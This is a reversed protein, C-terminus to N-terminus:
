PPTARRNLGLSLYLQAASTKPHGMPISGSGAPSEVFDYVVGPVGDTTDAGNDAGSPGIPRVTGANAPINRFETSTHTHFSAVSYTAGPDCPTPTASSDAPRPPLNVGAGSTPGSWAGFVTATFEYTDTQTNLRIWFGQERRQNPAATCDNLTATWASGVQSSVGADGTIDSYAPFQIILDKEPTLKDVGNITATGRVKFTGAIKAKFPDLTATTGLTCWAASSAGRIEIKYADVTTGAPLVTIEIKTQNNHKLTSHPM